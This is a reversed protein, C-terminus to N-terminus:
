AVKVKSSETDVPRALERMEGSKQVKLKVRKAEHMGVGCDIRINSFYLIDVCEWGRAAAELGAM